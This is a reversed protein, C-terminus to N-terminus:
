FDNRILGHLLRWTIVHLHKEWVTSINKTWQWRWLPGSFSLESQHRLQARSSNWKMDSTQTPGLTVWKSDHITCTNDCAAFMARICSAVLSWKQIVLIWDIKNIHPLNQQISSKFDMFLFIYTFTSTQVCMFEKLHRRYLLQTEIWSTCGGSAANSLWIHWLSAVQSRRICGAFAAKKEWALGSGGAPDKAAWGLGPNM